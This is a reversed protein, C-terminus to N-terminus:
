SMVSACHASGFLDFSSYVHPFHNEGEDTGSGWEGVRRAALRASRVRRAECRAATAQPVVLAAVASASAPRPSKQSKAGPEVGDAQKAMDAHPVLDQVKSESAVTSAAADSTIHPQISSEPLAESTSPLVPLTASSSLLGSPTATSVMTTPTTSNVTDVPAPSSTIAPAHTKGGPIPVDPNASSPKAAGVEAPVAGSWPVPLSALPQTIETSAKPKPANSSKTAFSHSTPLGSAACSVKKFVYEGVTGAPLADAPTNKTSLVSPESNALAFSAEPTVNAGGHPETGGAAAFAPSPTFNSDQAVHFYSYVLRYLKISQSLM